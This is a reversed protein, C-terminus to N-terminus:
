CGEKRLSDEIQRQTQSWGEELGATTILVCGYRTLAQGPELRGYYTNTHICRYAPNANAQLQHVQDWGTTLVASGDDSVVGIIGDDSPERTFGWERRHGATRVLSTRGDVLSM